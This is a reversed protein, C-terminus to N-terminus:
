NLSPNCQQVKKHEFSRWKLLKMKKLCFLLPHIKNRTIENKKLSRWEVLLEWINRLEAM